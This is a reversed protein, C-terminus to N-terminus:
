NAENSDAGEKNAQQADSLPVGKGSLREEAPAMSKVPLNGSKPSTGPMPNDAEQLPAPAVAQGAKQQIGSAALAGSNAPTDPVQTVGHVVVTGSGEVFGAVSCLTLITNIIGVVQDWHGYTVGCATMVQQILVILLTIFSAVVTGNITGDKNLFKTLIAKTLKNHKM